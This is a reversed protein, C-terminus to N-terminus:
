SAIGFSFGGVAVSGSSGAYLRSRLMASVCGAAAGRAKSNEDFEEALKRARRVSLNGIVVKDVKPIESLVRACLLGMRGADLVAIKM